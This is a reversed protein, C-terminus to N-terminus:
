IHKFCCKLHSILGMSSGLSPMKGLILASKKLNQFLAPSVEGGEPQAGPGGVWRDGVLRAGVM